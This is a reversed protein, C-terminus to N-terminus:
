GSLQKLADKFVAGVMLIVVISDSKSKLTILLPAKEISM